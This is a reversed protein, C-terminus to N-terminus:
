VSRGLQYFQIFPSDADKWAELFLLDLAKKDYSREPLEHRSRTPITIKLAVTVSWTPHWENLQNHKLIMTRCSRWVCFFWDKVYWIMAYWPVVDGRKRQSALGLTLPVLSAEDVVLGGQWTKYRKLNCQAVSLNSAFFVPKTIHLFWSLETNTFAWLFGYMIYIICIGCLLEYNM